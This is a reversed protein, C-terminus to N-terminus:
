WDVNEGRTDIHTFNAYRGIGGKFYGQSRLSFATKAVRWASGQFKIDLANNQLHLSRSKAGPCRRNYSPSRYASTIEKVPQGLAAAIRDVAKLTGAMSRWMTRPPLTNWLSGKTKAHAKIVQMTSINELGLGELFQGYSQIRKEGEKKVWIGPLASLDLPPSQRILFGNAACTGAVVGAVTVTAQALFSRRSSFVTQSSPSADPM